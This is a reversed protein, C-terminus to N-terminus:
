VLTRDSSSPTVAVVLGKVEGRDWGPCGCFGCGRARDMKGRGARIGMDPDHQAERGDQQRNEIGQHEVPDRDPPGM